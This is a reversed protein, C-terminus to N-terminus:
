QLGNLKKSLEIDARQHMRQVTLAAMEESYSSSFAYKDQMDAYLADIRKLREDDKMQLQGDSIIELLQELNELSANLVNQFVMSCHDIEAISLQRAEKVGKLCEKIASIIRLQLAIIDAVKAYAKIKPNVKKFSSIFDRHLNFDGNKINRVTTLGKNAISYGQQAYSIYVQLAAIQEILRKHKPKQAHVQVCALLLLVILIQKM